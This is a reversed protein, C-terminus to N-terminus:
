PWHSLQTFISRVLSEQEFNNISGTSIKHKLLESEDFSSSLSNVVRQLEELDEDHWILTQKLFSELERCTNLEYEKNKLEVILSDLESRMFVRSKIQQAACDDPKLQELAPNLLPNPLRLANALLVDKAKFSESQELLESNLFRPGSSRPSRKGATMPNSHTYGGSEKSATAAAAALAADEERISKSEQIIAARIRAWKSKPKLPTQNGVQSPPFPTKPSEKQLTSFSFIGTQRRTLVSHHGFLAALRTSEGDESFKVTKSDM